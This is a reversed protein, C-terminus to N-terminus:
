ARLGAIGTVVLRVGSTGVFANRGFFHAFMVPESIYAAGYGVGLFVVCIYAVLRTDAILLGGLGVGNIFLSVAMVKTPSVDGLSGSIRGVASVGVRVGLIAAAM